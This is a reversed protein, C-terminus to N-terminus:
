GVFDERAIAYFLHIAVGDGVVVAQTRDTLRAGIKEAARRSRHNNEGIRLIVRDVFRFAHTLMMRKMDRNYAGGWFARGLFTGGIEIEGDEAFEATYRSWGAVVGDTRRVAVLVVGAALSENFYPRFVSQLHRDKRPHLEWIEPDSAIAFLPDWDAAALPRMDLLEGSLNPQYEFM